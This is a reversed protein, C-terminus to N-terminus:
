EIGAEKLAQWKEHTTPVFIFAKDFLEFCRQYDGAEFAAKIERRARFLVDNPIYAVTDLKTFEGSNFEEDPLVVGEKTHAVVFVIDYRSDDVIMEGLTTENAMVDIGYFMLRNREFDRDWSSFMRSREGACYWGYAYKVIFSVSDEPTMEGPNPITTNTVRTETQGNVAIGANILGSVEKKDNCGVLAAAICLVAILLKKM